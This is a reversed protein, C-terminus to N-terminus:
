MGKIYEEIADHWDAFRHEGTLRFMMNDLISYAPRNASAPNNKVYEETTIHNVKTKKGALRFIEDTFDAWNTDGECTGHFIGYNATPLLWAMARALEAASTPTGLQDKVVSVEDHTESLKLMTKVFNNGDGYLWATRIIIHKCGTAEISKEGALKTKGYVGLPNTEWDERCPINKDGQFVYDTSVHIM